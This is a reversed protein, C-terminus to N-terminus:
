RSLLNSYIKLDLQKNSIDESITDGVDRRWNPEIDIM